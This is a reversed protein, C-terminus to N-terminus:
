VTTKGRAEDLLKLLNTLSLKDAKHLVVIAKVTPGDLAEKDTLSEIFDAVIQPGSQITPANKRAHHQRESM